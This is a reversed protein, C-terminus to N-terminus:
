PLNTYVWTPLVFRMIRTLMGSGKSINFINKYTQSLKNGPDGLAGLDEGFGAVGIIDLTARSAWENLDLGALGHDDDNRDSAESANM